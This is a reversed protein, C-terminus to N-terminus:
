EPDLEVGAWKAWHAVTERLEAVYLTLVDSLGSPMVGERHDLVSLAIKPAAGDGLDELVRKLNEIKGATHRVEQLLFQLKMGDLGGPKRSAAAAPKSTANQRM